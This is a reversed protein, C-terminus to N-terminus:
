KASSRGMDRSDLGNTSDRLPKWINLIMASERQLTHRKKSHSKRRCCHVENLFAIEIAAERLALLKGLDAVSYCTYNVQEWARFTMRGGRSEILCRLIEQEFGQCTKSYQLLPALASLDLEATTEELLRLSRTLPM